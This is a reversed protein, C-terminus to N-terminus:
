HAFVLGAFCRVRWMAEPPAELIDKGLRFQYWDPRTDPIFSRFVDKGLRFQSQRVEDLQSAFDKAQGGRLNMVHEVGAKSALMFVPVHAVWTEAAQNLYASVVDVSPRASPNKEWCTQVIEWVKHTFGLKESDRPRQPRENELVIKCALETKGRRAFPSRGTLM